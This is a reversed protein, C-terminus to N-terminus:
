GVYCNSTTSPKKVDPSPSAPQGNSPAKSPATGHRQKKWIFCGGLGAGLLGELLASKGPLRGLVKPSKPKRLGTSPLRSELELDKDVVSLSAHIVSGLLNLGLKKHFNECIDFTRTKRQTRLHRLDIAIRIVSRAIKIM